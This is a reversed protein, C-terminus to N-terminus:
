RRCVWWRHSQDGPDVGLDEHPFSGEGVPGDGGNSPSLASDHCVVPLAPKAGADHGMLGQVQEVEAVPVEVKRDVYGCFTVKLIPIM